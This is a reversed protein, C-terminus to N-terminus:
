AAHPEDRFRRYIRWREQPPLIGAFPSNQRHRCGNESEDLLVSRVEAWPQALIELWEVIAPTNGQEQQWRVCTSRAHALGRRQPDADILAVIAKAMALSRRDIDQHTM